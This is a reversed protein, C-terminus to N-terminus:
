IIKDGRLWKLWRDHRMDQRLRKGKGLESTSVGIDVKNLQHQTNLGPFSNCTTFLLSLVSLLSFPLGKVQRYCRNGNLIREEFVINEIYVKSKTTTIQNSFIQKAQPCINISFLRRLRTSIKGYLLQFITFIGVSLCSLNCAFAM